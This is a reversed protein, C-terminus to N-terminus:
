PYQLSVVVQRGEAPLTFQAESFRPARFRPKPNNSAGYGETPIGMWNTDLKNNSNRDHLVAVAYQGPPLDFRVSGAEAANVVARAVARAYDSMFGEASGFVAVLFQGDASRSDSISLDLMVTETAPAAQDAVVAAEPTSPPTPGGSLSCAVVVAGVGVIMARALLARAADRLAGNLLSRKHGNPM